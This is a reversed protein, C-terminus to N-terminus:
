KCVLLVIPSNENDADKMELILASNPKDAVISIMIQRIESNSGVFNVISMYYNKNNLKIIELKNADIYRGEDDFMIFEGTGDNIVLYLRLSDNRCGWLAPDAQASFTLLCLVLTIIIKTFM